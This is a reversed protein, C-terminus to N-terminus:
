VLNAVQASVSEPNVESETEVPVRELWLERWYAPIARPCNLRCTAYEANCVVNQLTICPEKMHRMAGTPEDIIRTVVSRVRFVRGCYPAMEEPDFTLGRNKGGQDLTAEIEAQSKIRVYEGPQLDLRGTPTRQGPQIKADLRPTHRGTLRYHMWENIFHLLRWGLPSSRVVTRLSALWVVKLVAGFSRNGTLVDYFYQRLDWFAL